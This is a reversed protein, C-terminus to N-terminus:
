KESTEVHTHSHAHKHDHSTGVFNEVIKEILFFSVIGAIIILNM